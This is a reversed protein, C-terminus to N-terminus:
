LEVLEQLRIQIGELLGSRLQLREHGLPLRLDERQLRGQGPRGGLFALDLLPITVELGAGRPQPRLPLLPLLLQLLGLAHPHGLQLPLVLQRCPHQGPEVLLLRRQCLLQGTGALVTSQVGLPQATLGQSELGVVRLGQLDRLLLLPARLPQEMLLISGGSGGLGLSHSAPLLGALQLAAQLPQREAIPLQLRLHLLGLRLICLQGPLRDQEPLLGLLLLQLEVPVDFDQVVADVLFLLPLLQLRLQLLDLILQLGQPLVVAALRLDHFAQLRLPRRLMRIGLLGDLQQHGKLLLLLLAPLVVLPHRM